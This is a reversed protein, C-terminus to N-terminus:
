FPLDNYNEEKPYPDGGVSRIMCDIYPLYKCYSSKASLYNFVQVHGYGKKVLGRVLDLVEQPVKMQPPCETEKRKSMTKYQRKWSPVTTDPFQTKSPLLRMFTEYTETNPNGTSIFSKWEKEFDAWRMGSLMKEFDSVEKELDSVTAVDLDVESVAEEVTAEEPSFTYQEFPETPPVEHMWVPIEPVDDSVFGDEDGTVTVNSSSVNGHINNVEENLEKNDTDGTNRLNTDDTNRLVTDNTIRHKDNDVKTDSKPDVKTDSKTCESPAVEQNDNDINPDVKTDSKPDVKTDNAYYVTKEGYGESRVLNLEKLHQRYRKVTVGTVGLKKGLNDASIRCGSGHTSYYWIMGYLLKEALNLNTNEFIEIPIFIGKMGKKEKNTNNNAM